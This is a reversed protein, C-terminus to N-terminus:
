GREPQDRGTRFLNIMTGTKPSIEQHKDRAQRPLGATEVQFTARLREFVRLKGEQACWLGVGM